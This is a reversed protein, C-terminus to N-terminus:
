MLRAHAEGLTERDIEDMTQRFVRPWQELAEVLRKKLRRVGIRYRKAADVLGVDGVIMAEIPAIDAGLAARWRRFAVEGLVQGLAEYFVGAGGGGGDVRTEMSMTRVGLASGMREIVAAIEEAAGLDDASIAGSVYLRALAGERASRHARAHTRATGQRHGWREAIEIQELRLAREEAAQRPNAACWKRHIESRRAARAADPGGIAPRGGGVGEDPKTKRGAKRRGM